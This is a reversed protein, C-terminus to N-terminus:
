EIQDSPVGGLKELAANLEPQLSSDDLAAVLPQQASTDGIEGLIRVAAKRERPDGSNLHALLPFVAEKGIEVLAQEAANKVQSSNSDVAAQLLEEVVNRGRGIKGLTLAARSALDPSKHSLLALVPEVAREDGIRGLIEITKATESSTGRGLLTILMDVAPTGIAELEDWNREALSCAAKDTDSVPIWGMRKLVGAIRAAWPEEPAAVLAASLPELASQSGLRELTEALEIILSPYDPSVLTLLGSAVKDGGIKELVRILILAQKADQAQEKLVQLLPDVSPQGISQLVLLERPGADAGRARIRGVLAPVSRKDKIKELATLILGTDPREQNENLLSLLPESAGKAGLEGLAEVAQERVSDNKVYDLAKILGPVNQRKKLKEINPPGFIPM